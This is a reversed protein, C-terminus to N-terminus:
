RFFGFDLEDACWVSKEVVFDFNLVCNGWEEVQRRVSRWNIESKLDGM